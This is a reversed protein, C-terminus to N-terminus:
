SGAGRAEMADRTQQLATARRVIPDIDYIAVDTTHTGAVARAMSDSAV